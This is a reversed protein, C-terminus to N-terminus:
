IMRGVGYADKTLGDLSKVLADNVSTVEGSVPSILDSVAKVSEIEGFRKGKEVRAGKKPLDIFVLDQLQEVAFSTIGVVVEGGDEKAWEHSETYKLGAPLAM